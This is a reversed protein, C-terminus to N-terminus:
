SKTIRPIFQGQECTVVKNPPTSTNFDQTCNNNDNSLKCRYDIGTGEKLKHCWGNKYCCGKTRGVGGSKKANLYLSKYKNYLYRYETM